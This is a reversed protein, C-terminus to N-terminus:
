CAIVNYVCFVKYTTIELVSVPHLEQFTVVIFWGVVYSVNFKM